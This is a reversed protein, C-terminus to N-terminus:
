ERHGILRTINGVKRSGEMEFSQPVKPSNLEKMFRHCPGVFHRPSPFASYSYVGHAAAIPSNGLSERLGRYESLNHCASAGGGM